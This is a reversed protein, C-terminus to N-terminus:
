KKMTLGKKKKTRIYKQCEKQSGFRALMKFLIQYRLEMAEKVKKDIRPDGLDLLLEELEKKILYEMEKGERETLMFGLMVIVGKEGFINVM